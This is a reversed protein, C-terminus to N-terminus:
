LQEELIRRYIEILKQVINKWSYPLIRERNRVEIGNRVKELGEIFDEEEDAFILGDKSEFIRPLAGFKTSIVPLNCAMAELVTLPMEISSVANRTPFIYCDSLKYVEEINEIYDMWIFCGSNRLSQYIDQEIGTSTSGVIIVQSDERQMKGLLHINRGKQMSGIHLIVFKGTDIGYKERLQKKVTLSVPLFKETDVGNPFFETKCGVNGFLKEANDSQILVLNPKFM